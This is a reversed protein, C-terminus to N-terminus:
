AVRLDAPMPLAVGEIEARGALRAVYQAVAIRHVRDALYDAVRERVLEFPLEQGAIKRELRIIHIGYRTEVPHETTAGPELDQMAAEFEPTTQGATIQGLNGSQSASPCASHARALEAFRGPERALIELAANAAERARDFSPADDKRAAFLIHSVEFIDASRFRRRNLDYYRRCASMDAVPTTVEREILARIMAEEDTERRGRDDCLSGATINLRRAESLLLARVVLARAAATWAALPSRAKHNQAERSIAHHPITVGNVAVRTRPTESLDTHLSCGM